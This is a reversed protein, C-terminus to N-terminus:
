RSARLKDHPSPPIDHDEDGHKDETDETNTRITEVKSPLASISTPRCLQPGGVHYAKELCIEENTYQSDVVQRCGTHAKTKASIM